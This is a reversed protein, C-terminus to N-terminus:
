PTPPSAEPLAEMWRELDQQAAADLLWTHGKGPVYRITLPVGKERYGNEVDRWARAGGDQEGVLVFWPTDQLGVAPLAIPSLRTGGNGAVTQQVPYAADLILGGWREPHAQFLVLAMQGGASYGFLLPRRPDVGELKGVSELTRLLREGENESWGAFSKLTFVLLAYGHRAFLPALAEAQENMSGGSPHLWVALRHPAARTAASGLRLRYRLGDEPAGTVSRVGPLDPANDLKRLAGAVSELVGAWERTGRLTALDPDHAMHEADVFGYQVAAALSRVAENTRGTRALACALNYHAGPSRPVLSLQERCAAAVAEYHGNSCLQQVQQELQLYRVLVERPSRASPVAGTPASPERAIAPARGMALFVVLLAASPGRPLRPPTKM